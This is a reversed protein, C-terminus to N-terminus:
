SESEPSRRQRELERERERELTATDVEEPPEAFDARESDQGLVDEGAARWDAQLAEVLRRLRKEGSRAM